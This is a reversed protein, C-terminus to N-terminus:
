YYQFSLLENNIWQVLMTSFTNYVVNVSAVSDIGRDINWWGLCTVRFFHKTKVNGCVIILPEAWKINSKTGIIIPTTKDKGLHISLKNIFWECLRSFNLNLQDEIEKVNWLPFLSM